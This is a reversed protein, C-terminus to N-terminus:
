SPAPSVPLVKQTPLGPCQPPRWGEWSPSLPAGSRDGQDWCTGLWWCLFFRLGSVFGPAEPCLWCFPSNHFDHLGLNYKNQFPYRSTALNLGEGLCPWCCLWPELRTWTIETESSPSGETSQEDQSIFDGRTIAGSGLRTVRVYRVIANKRDWPSRQHWWQVGGLEMWRCARFLCPNDTCIRGPKLYLCVRM